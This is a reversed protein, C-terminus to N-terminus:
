PKDEEGLLKKRVADGGYPAIRVYIYHGSLHVINGSSDLFFIGDSNSENGISKNALRWKAIISGDMAYQVVLWDAGYADSVWANYHRSCGKPGIVLFIGLLIVAVVVVVIGIFTRDASNM